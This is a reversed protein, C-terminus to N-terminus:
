DKLELISINYRLRRLVKAEIQRIRERTVCFRKGVAELTHIEGDIFGFRYQLIQKDRDTLENLVDEIVEKVANNVIIDEITTSEEMFDADICPIFEIIEESSGDAKSFANLSSNHMFKYEVEKLNYYKETSIEALKCVNDITYEPNKMELENEIKNIKNIAEVAHVPIRVINSKDAIARTIAQRIWLTAYTSFEYGLSVDFREIAKILGLNGENILDEYTFGKASRVYKAAVKKVLQQNIQILKNRLELDDTEDEYQEFLIRNDKYTSAKMLLEKSNFDNEFFSDLSMEDDDDDQEENKVAEVVSTEQKLEVNMYGMLKLFEILDEDEIELTKLHFYDKLQKKFLNLEIKQSHVPYKELIYKKLLKSNVM